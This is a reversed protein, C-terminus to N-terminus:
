EYIVIADSISSFLSIKNSDHTKINTMESVRNRTHSVIRNVKLKHSSDFEHRNEYTPPTQQNQRSLLNFKM